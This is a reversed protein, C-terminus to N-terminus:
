RAAPEALLRELGTLRLVEVARESPHVAVMEGGAADLRHLAWLLAGLGSSDLFTTESLDLELHRCGSGLLSGVAARLEPATAVDLEGGIALTCAGPGRSTTELTFTAHM